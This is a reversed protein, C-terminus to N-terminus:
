YGYPLTKYNGILARKDYVLAYKKSESKSVVNCGVRRIKVPDNVTITSTPCTTVLRTIADFNVDLSNRYNLTIGRVKCLTTNGKRDPQALCFAYNKAGGSVFKTIFNSPPDLENTLDGLYDGLPPEYQDPKSVFIVSDTDFYLVREGIAELLDYLKLRAYATTFAAIVVNTNVAGEVFEDQLTHQVAVMDDNVFSLNNVIHQESTLLRFLEAPEKIYQLQPFNNRQAFKGWMSNLMLKALARQGPNRHIKTKDLLIGERDYYERIYRDQDDETQCWSPWGSSEQKLKLFTNIYDTFLGGTHSETNYVERERYHWVEFVKIIKYGKEVAKALEPTTWTGVFSRQEDNHECPSQQKTDACSRCLPFMLKKEVRLPLVPFYLKRPPLVRCKALGFYSQVPLVINRTRVVPHKIPYKCYKNVYPYLSTFDVYHIEEDDVCEHYLTTANTRGGFFADRPHLPEQLDLSKVFEQLEQNEHIEKKFDCEWKEIVRFGHCRLFRMKDQTSQYLDAMTKEVKTNVIDHDEYCRPCGHYYCGHMEYVTNSEDDYGDVWYRDIKKEGGNHVHQINVDNKFTIWELWQLAIVSQNRRQIYGHDPIVGITDKKLFNKRLVVNCASAITVCDRFPDVGNQQKFIDQFKLCSRRLIDVDSRCYDELEQRLNFPRNKLREDEYWKLFKERAHQKMGDPGYYRSDPLPGIYDQNEATNFFHPFYGKHLENLEFMDPLQALAVPLFNYSDIFKINLDPIFIRMIKTGNIIVEPQVNNEHCYQLIFQGDYGQLNHAIFTSVANEETLAWDCFEQKTNPGYFVQESCSESQVICLNPVHVGGDQTCEFDFFYYKMEEESDEEDGEEAEFDFLDVDDDHISDRTSKNKKKKVHIAPHLM